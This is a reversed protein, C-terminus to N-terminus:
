KVEYVQYCIVPDPLKDFDPTARGQGCLEEWRKYRWFSARSKKMKWFAVFFKCTSSQLTKKHAEIFSEPSDTIGCSFLNNPLLSQPYEDKISNKLINEPNAGTWYFGEEIEDLKWDGTQKYASKAGEQDEIFHWHLPSDRKVAVLM